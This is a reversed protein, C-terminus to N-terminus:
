EEGQVLDLDAPRIIDRGAQTARAVAADVLERAEAFHGPYDYAILMGMAAASFEPERVGAERAAASLLHQLLPRLITPRHALPPVVVERHELRRFLAEDYPALVSRAEVDAADFALYLRVGHQAAADCIETLGASSLVQAHCVLLADDGVEAMFAGVDLAGGGVEVGLERADLTALEWQGASELVHAYRAIFTKGSGEAGGFVIPGPSDLLYRLADVLEPELLDAGYPPAPEAPRVTWDPRRTTAQEPPADRLANAADPDSMAGEEDLADPTDTQQAEDLAHQGDDPTGPQAAPRILSAVRADRAAPAASTASTESVDAGGDADRAALQEARASLERAARPLMGQQTAGPTGGRLAALEQELERVRRKEALLARSEQGPQTHSHAAAAEDLHREHWAVLAEVLAAAWVEPTLMEQLLDITQADPEPLPVEADRAGQLQVSVLILHLDDVRLGGPPPSLPLALAIAMAEAIGSMPHAQRDVPEALPIRAREQVLIAMADHMQQATPGVALWDHDPELTLSEEGTTVVFFARTEPLLARVVELYELALQERQSKHAVKAWGDHPLGHFCYLVDSFWVLGLIVTAFWRWRDEEFSIPVLYWALLASFLALVLLWAIYGGREGLSTGPADSEISAVFIEYVVFLGAIIAAVYLAQEADAFYGGLWMGVIAGAAVFGLVLAMWGAQNGRGGGVSRAYFAIPRAMSFAVLVLATLGHDSLMWQYEFAFLAIWGFCLTELGVAISALPNLETPRFWWLGLLVLLVGGFSGLVSFPPEPAMLNAVGSFVSNKREFVLLAEPRSAVISRVGEPGVTPQLKRGDLEVLRDSPEVGPPLATPDALKGQMTVPFRYVPRVLQYAVKRSGDPHDAVPPAADEVLDGRADVRAQTPQDLVAPLNQLVTRLERLGSVSQGQVAVLRDGRKFEQREEDAEWDVPVARVTLDPGFRVGLDPLGDLQLYAFVLSGLTLLVLM